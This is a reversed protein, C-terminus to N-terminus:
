QNGYHGALERKIIPLTAAISGEHKVEDELQQVLWSAVNKWYGLWWEADAKEGETVKTNVM